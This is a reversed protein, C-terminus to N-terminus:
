FARAAFKQHRVLCSWQKTLRLAAAYGVPLGGANSGCDSSM